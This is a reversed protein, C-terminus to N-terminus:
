LSNMSSVGKIYIEEFFFFFPGNNKREQLNVETVLLAMVTSRILLGLTLQARRGPSPVPVSVSVPCLCASVYWGAGSTTKTDPPPARPHHGSSQSQFSELPIFGCVPKGSTAPLVLGLAQPSPCSRLAPTVDRGRLGANTLPPPILSAAPAQDATM